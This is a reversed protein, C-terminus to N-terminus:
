RYDKRGCRDCKVVMRQGDPDMTTFRLAGDAGCDACWDRILSGHWGQSVPFRYMIQRTRHNHGLNCKRKSDINFGVSRLDHIRAAIRRGLLWDDHVGCLPGALLHRLVNQRQTTRM